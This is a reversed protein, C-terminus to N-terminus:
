ATLGIAAAHSNRRRIGLQLAYVVADVLNTAGQSWRLHGAGGGEIDSMWTPKSYKGTLIFMDDLNIAYLERAPIDPVALVEVGNVELTANNVGLKGPNTFRVQNQLLAEINAYQDLSTAIVPSRAGTKQEVKRRLTLLLDLSVTTTTTDVYAPQWFEEGANDPDLGGIGSTTSGAITRLGNMENSVAGARADKVSVYDNATENVNASVTLAPASSSETVATIEVGDGVAVENATTGVDVLLGPYLWGRVIADYGYGTPDLLVTTNNAGAVCKAILADGNSVAQRQIQKRMDAVAGTIELDLASAVSQNGGGGQNLVGTELSVQQYNYSLTYVAQDVKQEDAANLTGGAATKVSFGGSRGKHIPVQAQAGITFRNTREIRDLLPNDDYFQKELKSSTWVDKMVDGFNAVTQAM